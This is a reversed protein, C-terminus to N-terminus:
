VHFKFIICHVFDTWFTIDGIQNHFSQVNWHARSVLSRYLFSLWSDLSNSLQKRSKPLYSHAIEYVETKDWKCTAVYRESSCLYATMNQTFSLFDTIFVKEIIWCIKLFSFVFILEFYKLVCNKSFLLRKQWFVFSCKVPFRFWFLTFKCKWFRKHKVYRM